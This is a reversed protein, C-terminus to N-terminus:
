VHKWQWVRRQATYATAIFSVRRLSNIAEAPTAVSMIGPQLVSSGVVGGPLKIGGSGCCSGTGGSFGGGGGPLKIGGSGGGGWGSFGGGGGPLRM